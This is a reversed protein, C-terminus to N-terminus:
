EGLLIEVEEEYTQRALELTEFTYPERHTFPEHTLEYKNDPHNEGKFEVLEYLEYLEEDTLLLWKVKLDKSLGGTKVADEYYNYLSDFASYVKIINYYPEDEYWETYYQIDEEYMEELSKGVVDENELNDQRLCEESCYCYEGYLVHGEKFPENCHECFRLAM